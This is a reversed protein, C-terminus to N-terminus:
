LGSRLVVHRVIKWSQVARTASCRECNRVDRHEDMCRAQDVRSRVIEIVIVDRARVVLFVESPLPM